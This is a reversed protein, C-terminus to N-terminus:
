NNQDLDVHIKTTRDTNIIQANLIGVLWRDIM